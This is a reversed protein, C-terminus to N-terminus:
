CRAVLPRDGQKEDGMNFYAWGVRNRMPANDKLAVAKQLDYRAEAKRGMLALTYGRNAHAQADEANAKIQQDLIALKPSTQIVSSTRHACGAVMTFGFCFWVLRLNMVNLTYWLCDNRHLRVPGHTPKRSSSSRPAHIM